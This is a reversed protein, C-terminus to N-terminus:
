KGGELYIELEDDINWQLIDCFSGELIPLFVTYVFPQEGTLRSGKVVLYQTESPIDHGSSGM